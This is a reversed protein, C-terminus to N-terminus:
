EMFRQPKKGRNKRSNSKGTLLTLASQGEFVELKTDEVEDEEVYTYNVRKKKKVPKVIIPKVEVEEESEEETTDHQRKTYKDRPLGSKKSRSMMNDVKVSVLEQTRTKVAEQYDEDAYVTLCTIRCQTNKSSICVAAAKLDYKQFM